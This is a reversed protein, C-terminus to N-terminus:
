SSFSAQFPAFAPKEVWGPRAVVAMQGQLAIVFSLALNDNMKRLRCTCRKRDMETALLAAM